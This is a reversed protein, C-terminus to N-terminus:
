DEDDPPPQETLTEILVVEIENRKDGRLQCRIFNCKVVILIMELAGRIVGCLMNSFSLERYNSPLEVFEALPNEDFVLHFSTKQENWNEVSASINLYMRLAVKAIIEASEAFSGCSSIGSKALFDDILRIGMNYGMQELQINVQLPDEYDSIVQRVLSGYTLALLEVSVRDSKQLAMEGAKALSMGSGANKAM